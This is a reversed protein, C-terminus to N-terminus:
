DREGLMELLAELRDIVGDPQASTLQERSHAGTTVGLVLGCGVTKGEEIDIMADGVKAVQKPHFLDFAQMAKHIMDPHPRGQEVEDSTITFDILSNNKWGLKALLQDATKRSYGTNLAVKINRQHLEQFTKSAGPQEKIDAEDYAKDLMQVFREHINEAEQDSIEIQMAKLVDKIAQIKAKGAGVQLVLELTADYGAENIAKQVNRYVLQDEDVTTGAMDFVVLKIM